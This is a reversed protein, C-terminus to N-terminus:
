NFDHCVVTKIFNAHTKGDLVDMVLTYQFSKMEHLKIMFNVLFYAGKLANKILSLTFSEKHQHLLFTALEQTWLSKKTKDSSSPNLM